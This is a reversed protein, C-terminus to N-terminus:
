LIWIIGFNLESSFNMLYFTANTLWPPRDDYLNRIGQQIDAVSLEQFTFFLPKQEKIWNLVLGSLLTSRHWIDKWLLFFFLLCLDRNRKAAPLRGSGVRRQAFWLRSISGYCNAYGFLDFINCWSIRKIPLLLLLCFFFLALYKGCLKLLWISYISNDRRRM